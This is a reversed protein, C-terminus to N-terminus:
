SFILNAVNYETKNKDRDVQKLYRTTTQINAHHLVQQIDYISSGAEYSVVAFSRRLSHCSFTDEELGNRRLISKVIRRLSATTVGGNKNHNSISTFIYGTKRDGVYKKIDKLVELSLKVYECKSDRKKGLIFLVTEGNYEKIDELLANSIECVRLGTTCMLGFLCRERDDDLSKYIEQIKELSLVQKRPTTDHRAGKIDVAINEYLHHVSLYKFLSKVAVMYTNVTNSSYEERLVDRYAIIDDRTPKQIQQENLYSFFSNVGCKYAKLTLDDVDLYKIFTEGFNELKNTTLENFNLIENGM